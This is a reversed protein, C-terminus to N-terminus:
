LERMAPLVDRAFQRITVETETTSAGTEFDLSIVGAGLEQRV